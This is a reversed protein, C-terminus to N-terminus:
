GAEADKARKKGMLKNLRAIHALQYNSYATMRSIREEYCQKVLAKDQATMLELPVKPLRADIERLEQLYRAYEADGEDRIAELERLRANSRNRQVAVWIVGGLFGIVGFVVHTM